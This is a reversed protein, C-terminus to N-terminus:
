PNGSEQRKNQNGGADKPRDSGAGLVKGRICCDESNVTM